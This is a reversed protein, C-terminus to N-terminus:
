KSEIHWYLTTGTPSKHPCFTVSFEESRAIKSMMESIAEDCLKCQGARRALVNRRFWNIFQTKM